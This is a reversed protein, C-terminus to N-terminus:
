TTNLNCDKRKQEGKKKPFKPNAGTPLSVFRKFCHSESHSPLQKEMQFQCCEISRYAKLRNTSVSECQNKNVEKIGAESLAFQLCNTKMLFTM